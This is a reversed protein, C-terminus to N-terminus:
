NESIDVDSIDAKSKQKLLYQATYRESRNVVTSFSFDFVHMFIYFCLSQMGMNWLFICNVNM